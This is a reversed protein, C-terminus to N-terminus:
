RGCDNGPMPVCDSTCRMAVFGGNRDIDLDGSGDVLGRLEGTVCGGTVSFIELEGQVEAGPQSGGGEIGGGACEPGSGMSVYIEPYLQGLTSLDYIGPTLNELRLSLGFMWADVCAEVIDGFAEDCASGHDSFRLRVLDDPFPLGDGDMGPANGIVAWATSLGAIPDVGPPLTGCETIAPEPFNGVNSGDDESGSMSEFTSSTDAVELGDSTGATDEPDFHNILERETCGACLGCVLGAVAAVSLRPAGQRKM